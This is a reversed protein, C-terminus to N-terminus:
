ASNRRTFTSNLSSVADIVLGKCAIDCRRNCHAIQIEPLNSLYNLGQRGKDVLILDATIYDTLLTLYRDTCDLFSACRELRQAEQMQRVGFLRGVEWPWNSLLSYADEIASHLLESKMATHVSTRARSLGHTTNWTTLEYYTDGLVVRFADLSLAVIKLKELDEFSVLGIGSRSIVITNWLTSNHLHLSTELNRLPPIIDSIAIANYEEFHCDNQHITIYGIANTITSFLEQNLFAHLTHEDISNNTPFHSNHHSTISALPPLYPWSAAALLIICSLQKALRSGTKFNRLLWKM